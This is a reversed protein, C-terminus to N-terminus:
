AISLKFAVAYDSSVKERPPEIRLSSATQQWRIREASGLLEVHTVKGPRIDAETGLSRLLLAQQPWGLVIAYVVKNDKSRTYRVDSADLDRISHDDESRGKFQGPKIRHPGEAFVTWPRTAYIAEGNIQFWAGIRELILREKADITGDPKGPINLIFTGNKSVADALM